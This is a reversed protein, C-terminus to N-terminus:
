CREGLRKRDHQGILGGPDISGTNDLEAWVDVAEVATGIHRAGAAGDHGLGGAAGRALLVLSRGERSHVIRAPQRKDVPMNLWLSIAPLESDAPQLALAKALSVAAQDHRGRLHDVLGHYHWPQPDDPTEAIIARYLREAQQHQLATAMRYDDVMALSAIAM